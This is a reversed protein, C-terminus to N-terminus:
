FTSRANRRDKIRDQINQISLNEEEGFVYNAWPGNKGWEYHLVHIAGPGFFPASNLCKMESCLIVMYEKREKISPFIIDLAHEMKEKFNM